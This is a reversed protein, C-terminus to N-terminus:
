HCAFKSGKRSGSSKIEKIVEVLDFAPLYQLTQCLKTAFFPLRFILTVLTVAVIKDVGVSKKFIDRRQFIM